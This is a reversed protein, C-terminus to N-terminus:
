GRAAGLLAFAQPAECQRSTVLRSSVVRRGSADRKSPSTSPAGDPPAKSQRPGRAESAANTHNMAATAGEVLLREVADAARAVLAPLLGQEEPSWKGLVYDAPDWGEPPRGIGVRVRVYGPGLHQNLDRLGNHGGHGGGVKVRVTGPPLDLEDHAVVVREVAGRSWDVIARVPGGSLNMFRQPKVLTAREGRVLGAGVLAGSQEQSCSLGWRRGLEDVVLFGVNHRTQEYRRGPNGLGVVFWSVRAGPESAGM